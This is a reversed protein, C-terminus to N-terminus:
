HKCRQQIGRKPIYLLHYNDNNAAILFEHRVDKYYPRSSSLYVMDGVAVQIGSVASRISDLKGKAEDLSKLVPQISGIRANVSDIRQNLEVLEIRTLRAYEAMLMPYDDETVQEWRQKMKDNVIIRPIKEPQDEEM